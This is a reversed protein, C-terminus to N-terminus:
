RRHWTSRIQLLRGRVWRIAPVGYVEWLGYQRLYPSVLWM